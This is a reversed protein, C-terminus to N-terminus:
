GGHPKDGRGGVVDLCTRALVTLRRVTAAFGKWFIVASSDSYVKQLPDAPGTDTGFRLTM